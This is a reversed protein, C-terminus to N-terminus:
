FSKDKILSVKKNSSIYNNTLEHPIENLDIIKKNLEFRERVGHKDLDNNLLYINNLYKEVTKPGCKQFVSPINDSKDGLIIKSLLDKEPNDYSNYTKNLEKFKLNFLLTNNNALQLYDHDNTIIYIKSDNMNEIYKKTIAIIDDAELSKHKLIYNVGAQELLGESYVKKFFLGCIFTDNQNRNEKYVDLLHNRWIESRPCDIAAIVCVKEKHIKLKKKINDISQIFMKNFKEVFEINEYPNDLEEGEKALRWWQILAYYRYFILYSTDILLYKM